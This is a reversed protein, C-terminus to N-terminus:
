GGGSQCFLALAYSYAMNPLQSLNRAVDYEEYFKILWAYQKSRLAYYDIILVIALPDVKPNLNLILKSIEFATRCCACAELYQSYKFLTIYFARNEQRRYDLRCNGSSLSFCPHLSTELM